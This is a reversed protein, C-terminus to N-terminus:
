EEQLTGAAKGKFSSKSSKKGINLISLRKRMGGGGSKPNQQESKASKVSKSTEPRKETSQPKSTVQSLSHQSHSASHSQIPFSQPLAEVPPSSPALFSLSLRNSSKAEGKSRSRNRLGKRDKSRSRSSTAISVADLQDYEDKGNKEPKREPQVEISSGSKFFALSLRKKDQRAPRSEVTPTPSTVRTGNVQTEHGSSTLLNAASATAALWSGTPSRVIYEPNAPMLVILEDHFAAEFGIRTDTFARLTLLITKRQTLDAKTAQQSPRTYVALCRRIALAYDILAVKLANELPTPEPPLMSGDDDDYSISQRPRPLLDHYNAVAIESGTDTAMVLESTLAALSADDGEQAKKELM